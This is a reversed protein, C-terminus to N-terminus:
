FVPLKEFNIKGNIFNIVDSIKASGPCTLKKQDDFKPLEADCSQVTFSIKSDPNIQPLTSKLYYCMSRPLYGLLTSIDRPESVYSTWIPKQSDAENLYLFFNLAPLSEKSEEVSFQRDKKGQNKLLAYEKYTAEGLEDEIDKEEEVVLREQIPKMLGAMVLEGMNVRMSGERAGQPRYSGSGLESFLQSVHAYEEQSTMGKGWSDEELHMSLSGVRIDVSFWSAPIAPNTM